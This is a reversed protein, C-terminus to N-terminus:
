PHLQTTLVATESLSRLSQNVEESTIHQLHKFGSVHAKGHGKSYRCGGELSKQLNISNDFLFTPTVIRWYYVM